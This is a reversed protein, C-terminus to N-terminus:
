LKLKVNKPKKNKANFSISMAGGVTNPKVNDGGRIVQTFQPKVIPKYQPTPTKDQGVVSPMNNVFNHSIDNKPDSRPKDEVVFKISGGRRSNSSIVFDRSAGM